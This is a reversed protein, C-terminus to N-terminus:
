SQSAVATSAFRLLERLGDAEEVRFPYRNMQVLTLVSARRGYGSKSGLQHGAPLLKLSAGNHPTPFSLVHAFISCGIGPCRQGFARAWSAVGTRPIRQTARQCVSGDTDGPLGFADATRRALRQDLRVPQETAAAREVGVFNEFVGPLRLRFGLALEPASQRLESDAYRM